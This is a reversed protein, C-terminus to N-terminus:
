GIRKVRRKGNVEERIFIADEKADLPPLANYALRM